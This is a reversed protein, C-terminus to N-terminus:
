FNGLTENTSKNVTSTGTENNSSTSKTEDPIIPNAIRDNWDESLAEYVAALGELETDIDDIEADIEALTMTGVPTDIPTVVPTIPTTDVGANLGDVVNQRQEVLDARTERLNTIQTQNARVQAQLDAIQQRVSDPMGDCGYDANQLQSISSNMQRNAEVLTDIADDVDDISDDIAALTEARLTATISSDIAIGGDATDNILKATDIAGQNAYSGGTLRAQELETRRARLVEQRARNDQMPQSESGGTGYKITTTSKSVVKSSIQRKENNTVVISGPEYHGAGIQDATTRINGQFGRKMYVLMATIAVSVVGILFVFELTTQSRRKM